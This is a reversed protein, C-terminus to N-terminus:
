NSQLILLVLWTLRCPQFTGNASEKLLELDALTSGKKGTVIQICRIIFLMNLAWISVM